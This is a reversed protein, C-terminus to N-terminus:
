ITKAVQLKARKPKVAKVELEKETSIQSTFIPQTLM